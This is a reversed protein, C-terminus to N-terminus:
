LPMAYQQHASYRAVLPPSHAPKGHALPSCALGCPQSAPRTIEQTIEHTYKELASLINHCKNRVLDSVRTYIIRVHDQIVQKVKKDSTVETLEEGISNDIEISVSKARSLSQSLGWLKGEIERGENQKTIYKSLYAAIDRIKEVKHVDTSNPNQWYERKGREYLERQQSYTYMKELSKNFKFGDKYYDERAKAFRDVYGLKNVIRNWVHRLELAPIFTNSTIHFHINGNRQTEARWIYHIMNYKKRCETLFQNLCEKKIENDSHIQKSPLTLTIFNIKMTFEKKNYPNVVKKEPSLHVLWDVAQRIRREAKNSVVNNHKNNALNRDNTIQSLTRFRQTIWKNYCVIYNPRIALTPITLSHSM